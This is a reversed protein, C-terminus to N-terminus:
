EKPQEEWKKMIELFFENWTDIPGPVCWHVCDSQVHEQVVGNAFPFPKMYAGPHGDPRLLALETVDMLELRFGLQKAKGKASEVEEMEIRRIEADMGELQKEGKRYPESKACTGGKDWDGKFHSPSFTRMIVDIRNTNGEAERREIISNLTTRIAKRLPSYFGIDTCNLGPYNSCGVVSDGEYYISPVLFWHGFSLVILDMQDMDRAWRNNVHDLHITNYLPVPFKRQAGKVLFPSWYFSLNANHSPFNWRRSGQHHVRHPTSATTLLCILSELQNRSISDGVFAVHKNKILQLFTHPKFRPLNCESPKWRWQLYGSDPRGNIICNQSEKIKCTTGNYLPGRKDHVWQGNSYDCPKVYPQQKEPTFTPPLSSQNTIPTTSFPAFSPRYSYLCLLAFFTFPLLIMTLSLSLPKDTFRFPNTTSRM